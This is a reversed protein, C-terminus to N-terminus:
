LSDCFVSKLNSTKMATVIFFAKKRPHPAMYNKHEQNVCSSCTVVDWFIANKLFSINAHIYDLDVKLVKLENSDNFIEQQIAVFSIDRCLENVVSCIIEFNEANICLSMWGHEGM